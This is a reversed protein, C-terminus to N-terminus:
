GLGMEAPSTATLVRDALRELEDTSRVAEVRRRTEAPLPGFRREMMRLLLSRMGDERGAREGERKGKQLGQEEIKEAWTLEMARVERNDTRRLLRAYREAEEGSLQLYTEVCNALLFRRADDLPAAAIRRLCALKLRAPSRKRSRMLAALAWALPEGRRLHEDASAGALGFAFYRLSALEESAVQERLVRPVAGAPGGSRYLVLSVVPHDHRLRLQMAYRGLRPPLSRRAAAEIEVHVLVARRGDALRLEALLDVQRRAGSPLDTFHEADLFRPPAGALVAKVRPVTLALLDPLFARLLDKFLQDHGPM